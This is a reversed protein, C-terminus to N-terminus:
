RGARQAWSALISCGAFCGFMEAWAAAAAVVISTKSDGSGVECEQLFHMGHVTLHPSARPMLKACDLASRVNIQANMFSRRATFGDSPASYGTAPLRYGTALTAYMVLRQGFLDPAIVGNGVARM